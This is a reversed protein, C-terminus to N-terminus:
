VKQFDKVVWYTEDEVQPSSSVQRLNTQNVVSGLGVTYVKIGANHVATVAQSLTGGNLTPHGDLFM